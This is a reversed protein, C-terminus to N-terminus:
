FHLRVFSRHARVEKKQFLDAAAAEKLIVELKGYSNILVSSKKEIGEIVRDGIRLFLKRRKTASSVEELHASTLNSILNAFRDVYVIEGIPITQEWRPQVISLTRYDGIIPRFSEFPEHTALRVVAPAFLYRGDFTHGPRTLRREFVGWV